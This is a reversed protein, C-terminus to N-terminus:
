LHLSHEILEGSVRPVVIIRRMQMVFPLKISGSDLLFNSQSECVIRMYIYKHEYKRRCMTNTKVRSELRTSPLCM